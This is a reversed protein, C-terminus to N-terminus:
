RSSRDGSVVQGAVELLARVEGADVSLTGPRNDRRAAFVVGIVEGAANVVPSGSSGPGSPLTSEFVRAAFRGDRTAMQYVLSVSGNSYGWLAQNTGATGITHALEGPTPGGDALKLERVGTPLRNVQIVALDKLPNSAIVRAVIGPGRSEYWGRATAVEGPRDETPFHLHIARALAVVHHNTVLFRNRSDAVWATGEFERPQEEATPKVTVVWAVAPLTDRYVQGRTVREQGVPGAAPSLGILAALGAAVLLRFM